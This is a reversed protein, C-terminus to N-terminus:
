DLETIKLTTMAKLGYKKVSQVVCIQQDCDWLIGSLADIFGKMLNDTLDPKTTKFFTAGNKLEELRKKSWSKLPPFIFEVEIKLAKSSPMVKSTIQEKAQLKILNKWDGIEKPQYKRGSRTFRFSQVAKPTGEFIFTKNYITSHAITM